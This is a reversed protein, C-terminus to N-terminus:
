KQEDELYTIVEQYYEDLLPTEYESSGKRRNSSSTDLNNATETTFWNYNNENFVTWVNAASAGTSANTKFQASAASVSGIDSTSVSGAGSSDVFDNVVKAQNSAAKERAAIEQDSAHVYALRAIPTQISSLWYYLGKALSTPTYTQTQNTLWSTRTQTDSYNGVTMSVGRTLNNNVNWMLYAVNDRWNKNSLNVTNDNLTGDNYLQRVTISSGGSLVGMGAVNDLGYLSLLYPQYTTLTSDISGSYAYIGPLTSNELTYINGTNSDISTVTPSLANLITKIDNTLTKTSSVNTDIRSFFHLVSGGATTSTFEALIDSLISAITGGSGDALASYIASLYQNVTQMRGAILNVLQAFSYNSHSGDFSYRGSYFVSSLNTLYTVANSLYQNTSSQGSFTPMNTYVYNYLSNVLSAISTNNYKLENYINTTNTTVTSAQSDTFGAAFAFTVSGFILCLATIFAVAKKM